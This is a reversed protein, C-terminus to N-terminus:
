ITTENNTSGYFWKGKLPMQLQQYFPKFSEDTQAYSYDKPFVFM